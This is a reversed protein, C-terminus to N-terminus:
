HGGETIDRGREIDRFAATGNRLLAILEDLLAIAFIVLGLTMLGQPIWLRIPLMGYSMSGRQFSTMAQMGMAWTIFGTLGLAILIVLGTMFRDGAPGFARLVLTVRIHTASRLTPALALFAAVGFLYGAIEGLSPVSLGLRAQGLAVLVQDLARGLVQTFVLAAIAVMAACTGFLAAGYLYDLAKRM